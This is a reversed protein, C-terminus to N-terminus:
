ELRRRFSADWLHAVPRYCTVLDDPYEEIPDGGTLVERVEELDIEEM